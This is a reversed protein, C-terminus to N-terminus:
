HKRRITTITGVFPANVVFEISAKYEDSEYFKVKKDEFEVPQFGLKLFEDPFESFSNGYTVCRIGYPPQLNIASEKRENVWLSDKKNFSWGYNIKNLFLGTDKKEDSLLTILDKVALNREESGTYAQLTEKNTLLEIITPDKKSYILDVKQGKYFSAFEHEGVSEKVRHVKGAKTKFKVTVEYSGGRRSKISSGDVIVGSVKEGYQQLESKEESVFHMFFVFVMVLGPIVLFPITRHRWDQQEKNETNFEDWSKFDGISQALFLTFLAAGIISIILPFTNYVTNPILFYFFIFTFVTASIWIIKRKKTSRTSHILTAERIIGDFDAEAVGERTLFNKIEFKLKQENLLKVVAAILEERGKM